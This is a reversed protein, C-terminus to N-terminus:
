PCTGFVDQCLATSLPYRADGTQGSLYEYDVTFAMLGGFGQSKQWAVSDKISRVGSYSIFENLTPISLYDSKHIGDYFQYQPQWRTLDTVLDRYNISRTSFNGKVLAQTIGAWRRGYFPIGIGMKSAPVGATAFPKVRWDCAGVNSIGGQTLPDNYWSFGNGLDMDYCMLNIQDVQSYSAGAVSDLGGWNGAAMTITKTPMANRLRTLLNSYQTVNINHEWDIDLGDYQNSNVFNVINSVFAAIISPATSQAFASLYSDNDKICVLVRKGSPRDAIVANINAQSLWHLEVTGNANGKLDVGPAAAFHLIHTYKTWPIASPPLIGDQAAYYGSIWPGSLSGPQSSVAQAFALPLPRALAMPLLGFLIGSFFVKMGKSM